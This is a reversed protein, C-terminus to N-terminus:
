LTGGMEVPLTLTFTSGKDLESKVAVTGGLMETFAKVIHLGLGIGGHVRTTSSDVQRFKDFIIPLAEEPIGPGTDAVELELAKKDARWRASIQISGKDTFKIANNIL